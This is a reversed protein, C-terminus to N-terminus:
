AAPPASKRLEALAKALLRSVHMQSIGVRDAIQYQSMEDVFRLKLITQLREPLRSIAPGLWDREEVWDFGAEEVPPQLPRRPDAALAEVSDMAFTQGASLAEIVAEESADLATALEAVTPARGRQHTLADRAPGLRLYLDQVPRPIRMGWRRDRFHHKLEGLIVSTAYAGFPVGRCEDYRRAAQVLALRAVQELDERSEGRNAFRAALQRALPLNALVREEVIDREADSQLPLAMLHAAAEVSAPPRSPAAEAMVPDITTM